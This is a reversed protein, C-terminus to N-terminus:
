PVLMKRLRDKALFITSKVCGISINMRQAIEEYKYGAMQMTIMQAYRVPLMGIVNHIDEKSYKNDNESVLPHFCDDNIYSYGDVFTRKHKEKNTKDNIFVNKMVKKAWASFCGQDEYKDISTLIRLLTDQLLDDAQEQNKTLYIAYNELARHSEIVDKEFEEKDHM